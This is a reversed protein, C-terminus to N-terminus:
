HWGFGCLSSAIILPNTLPFNQFMRQGAVGGGLCVGVGGLSLKDTEKIVGVCDSESEFRIFTCVHSLIM